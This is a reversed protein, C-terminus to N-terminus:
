PERASCGTSSDGVPGGVSGLNGGSGNSRSNNSGGNGAAGPVAIRAPGSTEVLRWDAANACVTMGAWAVGCVWAARMMNRRLM